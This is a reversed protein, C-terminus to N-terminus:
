AAPVPEAFDYLAGLEFASAEQRTYALVISGGGMGAQMDNAEAEADYPRFTLTHSKSGEAQKWYENSAINTLRYRM